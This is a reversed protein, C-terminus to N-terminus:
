LLANTEKPKESSTTHGPEPRRSSLFQLQRLPAELGSTFQLQISHATRRTKRAVFGTREWSAMKLRWNTNAMGRVRGMEVAFEAEHASV